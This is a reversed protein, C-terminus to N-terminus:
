FRSPLLLYTKILRTFLSIQKRAHSTVITMRTYSPRTRWLHYHCKVIVTVIEALKMTTRKPLLSKALMLMHQYLNLTLAASVKQSSSRFNQRKTSRSCLERSKGRDQILLNLNPRRLSRQRKQLILLMFLRHNM